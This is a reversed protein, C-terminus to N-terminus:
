QRGSGAIEDAVAIMKAYVVPTILQRAAPILFLDDPRNALRSIISEVSFASFLKNVNKETEADNGSKISNAILYFYARIDGPFIQKVRKFFWMAQRYQRCM